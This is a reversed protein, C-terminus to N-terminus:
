KESWFYRALVGGLLLVITMFVYLLFTEAKGTGSGSSGTTDVTKDLDTIDNGESDLLKLESRDLQYTYVEGTQEQLVQQIEDDSHINLFQHHRIEFSFIESDEIGAAFPLEYGNLPETCQACGVAYYTGGRTDFQYIAFGSAFPVPNSNVRIIRYKQNWGKVFQAFGYVDPNNVDKFYVILRGNVERSELVYAEPSHNDFSTFETIAGALVSPENTYSFESSYLLYAGIIAIIISSVSAFLRAKKVKKFFNLETKPINEDTSVNTKMEMYLENCKDCTNVHEEIFQNTEDSTLGELYNPLLDEVIHCTWEKNM